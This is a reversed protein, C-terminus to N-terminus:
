ELSLLGELMYLLHRQHTSNHECLSKSTRTGKQIEGGEIVTGVFAHCFTDQYLNVMCHCDNEGLSGKESFSKLGDFRM